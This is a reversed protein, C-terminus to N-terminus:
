ARARVAASTEHRGDERWGPPGFVAGLVGRWTRAGAVERALAAWDHMAIVVPNHSTLPHLIGYTPRESEPEFTGFLRDWVILIGGHNRDLYRPNTGHHVRHHSPTNLVAELPGLHGILETHLGYQYLLSVSSFTAIWVPHFGLFALPLWFVFGTLPTTWSQRLATSLNYADSSHHNVHSAWLFRVEHSARHWAYYTLDEALFLLVFAWWPGGEAPLMTLARHEWVMGWIGLMVGAIAAKIALHGLGMGLSGATDALTYGRLDPHHRLAWAEAAMTLVFVPIALYILTM